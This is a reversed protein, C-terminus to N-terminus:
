TLLEPRYKEALPRLTDLNISELEGAALGEGELLLGFLVHVYVPLRPERDSVYSSYAHEYVKKARPILSPPETPEKSGEGTKYEIGGKILMPDKVNAVLEYVEPESPIADSRSVIEGVQSWMLGGPESHESSEHSPPIESHILALLLHETGIYNHKLRLAESAASERIKAFGQEFEEELGM